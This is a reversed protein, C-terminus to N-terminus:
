PTAEQRDLVVISVLSLRTDAPGAPNGPMM